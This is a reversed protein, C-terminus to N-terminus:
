QIEIFYNFERLEKKFNNNTTIKDNEIKIFEKDVLKSLIKNIILFHERQPRYIHDDNIIYEPYSNISYINNRHINHRSLYNRIKGTDELINNIRNIYNTGYTRYIEFILEVKDSLQIKTKERFKQIINNRKKNELYESIKSIPIIITVLFAFICFIYFFFRAVHIGFNGLTLLEIFSKEEKQGEKFSQRVPFAENIGAINGFPTITPLTDGKCITLVKITFYQDQNFPIKDLVINNLSDYTLTLNNKLIKNSAETIVPRDAIKGNSIKLGFPTKSYYDNERIDENGENSIRITSLILNEKQEKLNQGDYIIDLKNLNEKVSLVETNSLIDFVIRPESVKFQDIYVAYCIGTIGIVFGMFSWAFKTDLSKIYNYLGM